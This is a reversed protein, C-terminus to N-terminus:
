VCVGVFKAPESVVEYNRDMCHVIRKEGDKEMLYTLGGAIGPCYPGNVLTWDPYAKRIAEVHMREMPARFKKWARIGGEYEIYDKDDDTM